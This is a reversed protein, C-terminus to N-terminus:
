MNKYLVMSHKQISLFKPNVLGCSNAAAADSSSWGDDIGGRGCFCLTLHLFEVRSEFVSMSCTGLDKFLNIM